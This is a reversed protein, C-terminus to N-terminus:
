LVNSNSSPERISRGKLSGLAVDLTMMVAFGALTALTGLDTNRALQSEPILEEVVVLDHGRGCLGACLAPRVAYELVLIARSGRCHNSLGRCHGYLVGKQPEDGGPSSTRFATGEPFNQLGIGIALAIAAGINSIAIWLGCRWLWEPALSWESYQVPYYGAGIFCETAFQDQPGEAEKMSLGPHLHPPDQGIRGSVLWRGSFRDTCPGM